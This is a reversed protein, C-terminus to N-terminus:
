MEVLSGSCIGDKRRLLEDSVQHLNIKVKNMRLESEKM